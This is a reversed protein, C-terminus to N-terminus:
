YALSLSGNAIKQPGKRYFNNLISNHILCYVHHRMSTTTALVVEVTKPRSPFTHGAHFHIGNWAHM